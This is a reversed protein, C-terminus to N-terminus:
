SPVAARGGSGDDLIVEVEVTPNGRSDLIERAHVDQITSMAAPRETASPPSVRAGPPGPNVPNSVGPPVTKLTAAAPSLALPGRRPCPRRVPARTRCAPPRSPPCATATRPRPGPGRAPRGRALGPSPDPTTTAPPRTPATTGAGPTGRRPRGFAAGRAASRRGTTTLTTPQASEM